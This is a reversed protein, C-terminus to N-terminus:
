YFPKRHDAHSVKMDGYRSVVNRVKYRKTRWFFMRDSLTMEDNLRWVAEIGCLRSSWPLMAAFPPLGLRPLSTVAPMRRLSLPRAGINGSPSTVDRWLGSGETISRRHKGAAGGHGHHVQEGSRPVAGAALRVAIRTRSRAVRPPNSIRHVGEGIHGHLRAADSAVGPRPAAGVTQRPGALRGMRVIRMVLGEADCHDRVPGAEAAGEDLGAMARPEELFRSLCRFSYPRRAGPWPFSACAIKAPAALSAVARRM